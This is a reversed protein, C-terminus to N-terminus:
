RMEIKIVQADYLGLIIRLLAQTTQHVPLCNDLNYTDIEARLVYTQVNSDSDSDPVYTISVTENYAPRLDGYFEAKGTEKNIYVGTTNEPNTPREALYHERAVTGRGDIQIRLSM